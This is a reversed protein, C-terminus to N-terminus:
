SQDGTIRAHAGLPYPAWDSWWRLGCWSTSSPSALELMASAAGWTMALLLGVLTGVSPIDRGLSGKKYSYGNQRSTRLINQSLPSILGCSVVQLFLIKNYPRRHVGNPIHGWRASRLLSDLPITKGNAQFSIPCSIRALKMTFYALPCIKSSLIRM